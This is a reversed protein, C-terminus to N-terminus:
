RNNNNGIGEDAQLPDIGQVSTNNFYIDDNFFCRVLHKIGQKSLVHILFAIRIRLLSSM